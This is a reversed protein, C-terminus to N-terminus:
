ILFDHSLIILILNELRESRFWIFQPLVYVYLLHFITFLYLKWKWRINKTLSYYNIVFLIQILLLPYIFRRTFIQYDLAVLVFIYSYYSFKLLFILSKSKFLNQNKLVKPKFYLEIILISILYPVLNFVSGILSSQQDSTVYTNFSSSQVFSSFYNFIVWVPVISLLVLRKVSKLNFYSIFYMPIFLISSFHNLFAIIFFLIGLKLNKKLSWFYLSICVLNFSLYFRIQTTYFVFICPLFLIIVFLVNKTFRSIFFVLTVSSLVIYLQHLNKFEGGFFQILDRLWYFVIETINYSLSYHHEYVLWDPTWNIM